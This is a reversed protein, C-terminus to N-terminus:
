LKQNEHEQKEHLGHSLALLQLLHSPLPRRAHKDLVLLLSPVLRAAAALAAAPSSRERAQIRRAKGKM